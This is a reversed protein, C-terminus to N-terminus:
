FESIISDFSNERSVLNSQITFNYPFQRCIFRSVHRCDCTCNDNSKNFKFPTDVWSFFIFPKNIQHRKCCKCKSLFDLKTQYTDGPVSEICDHILTNINRITM